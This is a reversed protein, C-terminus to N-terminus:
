CRDRTALQAGQRGVTSRTQRGTARQERVRRGPAQRSKAPWAEAIDNRMSEIMSSQQVITEKLSAILEVVEGQGTRRDVWEPSVSERATPSPPLENQRAQPATSPPENQTPQPTTTRARNRTTQLKTTRTGLSQQAELVRASPKRIRGKPLAPPASPTTSPIRELTSPAM